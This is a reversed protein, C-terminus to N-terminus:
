VKMEKGLKRELEKMGCWFRVFNRTRRAPDASPIRDLIEMRVGIRVCRNM